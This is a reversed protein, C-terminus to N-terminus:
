GLYSYVAFVAFVVEVALLVLVLRLETIGKTLYMILRPLGYVESFNPCFLVMGKRECWSPHKFRGRIKLFLEGFFPLILIIGVKEINGVIVAAALVAGITLTGVDGIFIRAPYWNYRLFALLAGAMAASLIFAEVSGPYSGLSLSYSVLAVSSLMIVGLGAELGNFGALINTANSAGTIALPILVLVYFIGFDVSGVFPLTMTTEGVKLAVLPLAAFIPIVAKVEQRILLLDDVIGILATILVTSFAALLAPLSLRLPIVNFTSLAVAILVGVLFGTVIALGGMEPVAVDGDKCRDKGSIGAALLRPMMWPILLWTVVFAAAPVALLELMECRIHTKSLLVPM